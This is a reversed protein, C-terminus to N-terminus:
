SYALQVDLSSIQGPYMPLNQPDFICHYTNPIPCNNEDIAPTSILGTSCFGGSPPIDDNWSDVLVDFFWGITDECGLSFIITASNKNIRGGNWGCNPFPTNILSHCLPYGCTTSVTGLWAYGSPWASEDITADFSRHTCINCNPCPNCCCSGPGGRYQM